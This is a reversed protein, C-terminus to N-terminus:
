CPAVALLKKPKFIVRVFEVSQEFTGLPRSLHSLSLSCSFSLGKITGVSLPNLTYSYCYSAGTMYFRQPRLSSATIFRSFLFFGWEAGAEVQTLGGWGTQGTAWRLFMLSRRIAIGSKSKRIVFKSETLKQVLLSYKWVSKQNRDM